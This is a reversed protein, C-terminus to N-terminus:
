DGTLNVNVSAVSDIVASVTYIIKLSEISYTDQTPLASVYYDGGSATV